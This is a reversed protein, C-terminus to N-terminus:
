IFLQYVFFFNYFTIIKYCYHALIDPPTFAFFIQKSWSLFYNSIKPFSFISIYCLFFSHLLSLINYLDRSTLVPKATRNIIMVSNVALFESLLTKLVSLKFKCCAFVDNCPSAYSFYFITEYHHSIVCAFLYYHLKMNLKNIFSFDYNTHSARLILYLM